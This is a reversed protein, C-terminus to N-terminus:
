SLLLMVSGTDAQCFGDANITNSCPAKSCMSIRNPHMCKRCLMAVPLDFGSGDVIVLHHVHNEGTNCSPM